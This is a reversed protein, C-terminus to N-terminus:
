VDFTPLPPEHWINLDSEDDLTVAGLRVEYDDIRDCTYTIVANEIDWNSEGDEPGKLVLSHPFSNPFGSAKMTAGAETSGKFEDFELPFGNIAFQPREPGPNTGTTVELTFQNLKPM